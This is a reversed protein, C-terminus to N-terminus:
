LRPAVSTFTASVMPQGNVPVSVLRCTVGTGVGDIAIKDEYVRMIAYSNSDEKAELMGELTVFPRDRYIVFGGPHDHGALALVFAPSAACIAALEDGNWCRHTERCSGQALPHHSAVIVRAGDIEARELQSRLWQTQEERTGGNWRKMRVQNRHANLFANTEVEQPSGAPWGAHTSLETTDLVLLRWGSHLDVAYYSSNAKLALLLAERSLFKLCHNGVTHYVPCKLRGFQAMVLRLDDNTSEEDERGDVIDGSPSSPSCHAPIRSIAHHDRWGVRLRAIIQSAPEKEGM